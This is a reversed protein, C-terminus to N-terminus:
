KSMEVEELRRLGQRRLWDQYNAKRRQIEAPTLIAERPGGAVDTVRPTVDPATPESSRVATFMRLPLEHHVTMTQDLQDAGLEPDWPLTLPSAGMARLVNPSTAPDWWAFGALLVGASLAVIMTTASVLPRPRLQSHEAVPALSGHTARKRSHVEPDLATKDFALTPNKTPGREFAPIGHGAPITTLEQLADLLATVTPCRQKPDKELCWSVIAELRADAGPKWTRLLPAPATLVRSCVEPVTGGDFPHAGTLLEFLVVGLSWVDTRQDVESANAMQEPSMYWPSGLSREPSTLGISGNSFHKSIGFDLIKLLSSGDPRRALFLNAPKVDRHVLRMAHAEALGACAECVLKVAESERLRGRAGVFAELGIGELHEMVLYPEGSELQGVDHVHAIHEGKLSAAARAENLFRQVFEPDNKLDPRIVKFAVPVDLGVHRAAYVVGMGGEGIVPGILYRDAILRGDALHTRVTISMLTDRATWGSRRSASDLLVRAVGAFGLVPADFVRRRARRTADPRETDSQYMGNPVSRPPVYLKWM